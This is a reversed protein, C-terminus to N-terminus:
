CIVKRYFTTVRYYQFIRRSTYRRWANQISHAGPKRKPPPQYYHQQPPQQLHQQQSHQQQQQQMYRQQQMYQQSQNPSNNFSNQQQSQERMIRRSHETHLGLENSLYLTRERWARQIVSSAIHYCTFRDYVYPWRVVQM